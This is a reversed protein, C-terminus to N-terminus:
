LLRGDGVVVFELRLTLKILNLAPTNVLIHLPALIRALRKGLSGEMEQLIYLVMHRILSNM